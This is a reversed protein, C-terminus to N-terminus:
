RYEKTVTRANGDKDQKTDSVIVASPGGSPLDPNVRGCTADTCIFSDYEEGPTGINRIVPKQGYLKVLHGAVTINMRHIEKGDGNYVIALVSGSGVPTITYTRDTLPTVEVVGKQSILMKAIPKDFQVVKARGMQMDLTDDATLDEPSQAAAAGTLLALAIAFAIRKM